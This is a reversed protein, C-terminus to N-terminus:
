DDCEEGFDLHTNGCLNGSGCDSPCSESSETSDCIGDGCFCDAGCNLGDEGNATSCTGDGCCSRIDPNNNGNQWDPLPSCLGINAAIFGRDGANIFGNGDMDFQCILDCRTQGINAAVFGRDGPNVFGDGNADGYCGTFTEPLLDAVDCVYGREGRFPDNNDVATPLDGDVYKFENNNKTLGEDKGFFYKPSFRLDSFSFLIIALMVAVVILVLIIKRRRERENHFRDVSKKM